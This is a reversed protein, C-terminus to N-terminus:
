SEGKIFRSDKNALIYHKKCFKPERTDSTGYLVITSPHEIGSCEECKLDQYGRFARVDFRNGDEIENVYAAKNADPLEMFDFVGLGYDEPTILGECKPCGVDFKSNVRLDTLGGRWKCHPCLIIGEMGNRRIVIDGLYFLCVSGAVVISFGVPYLDM